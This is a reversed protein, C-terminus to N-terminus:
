ISLVGPCPVVIVMCNQHFVADLRDPLEPFVGSIKPNRTNEKKNKCSKDPAKMPHPGYILLM